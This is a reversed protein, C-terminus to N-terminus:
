NEEGEDLEIKRSVYYSWVLGLGTGLYFIDHIDTLLLSIFAGVFLLFTFIEYKHDVWEKPYTEPDYAKERLEQLNDKLKKFNM